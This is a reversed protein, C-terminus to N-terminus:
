LEDAADSTYLLCTDINYAEAFLYDLKRKLQELTIATDIPYINKKIKQMLSNLMPEKRLIAYVCSLIHIKLPACIDNHVVVKEYAAKNPVPIQRVVSQTLDIGPMKLRVFYDFPISNFLALLMILDVDDDIQLMQISQCTPCTPLIMAIM